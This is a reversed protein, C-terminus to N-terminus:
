YENSEGQPKNNYTTNEIRIVRHWPIKRNVARPEMKASKAHPDKVLQGAQSRTLQYGRFELAPISSEILNQTQYYAFGEKETPDDVVILYIPKTASRDVVKPIGSM